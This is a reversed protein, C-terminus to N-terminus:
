SFALNTFIVPLMWISLSYWVSYHHNIMPIYLINLLTKVNLCWCLHLHGLIPSGRLWRRNIALIEMFSVMWHESPSVVMKESAQLWWLHCGGLAQLPQLFDLAWPWVVFLKFHLSFSSSGVKGTQPWFTKTYFLIQKFSVLLESYGPTMLSSMREWFGPTMLSSPSATSFRSGLTLCCLAQFSASTFFLQKWHDLKAQKHDSHKPIFCFKNSHFLM